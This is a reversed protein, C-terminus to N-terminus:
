FEDTRNDSDAADDQHEKLPAGITSFWSSCTEEKQRDDYNPEADSVLPQRQIYQPEIGIVSIRTTAYM